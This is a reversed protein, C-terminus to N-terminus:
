SDIYERDWQVVASNPTVTTVTDLGIKPQDSEPGWGGSLQDWSIMARNMLLRTCPAGVGIKGWRLKRGITSYSQNM